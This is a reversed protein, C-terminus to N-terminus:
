RIMTDKEVVALFRLNLTRMPIDRVYCKWNDQM